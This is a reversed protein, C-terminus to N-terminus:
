GSDRRLCRSLSSGRGLYKTSSLCRGLKPRKRSMVRKIHGKISEPEKRSMHRSWFKSIKKSKSSDRSNSIKRSKSRVLTKYRKKSKSCGWVEIEEYVEFYQM